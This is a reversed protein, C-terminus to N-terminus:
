LMFKCQFLIVVIEYKLYAILVPLLINFKLRRKTLSVQMPFCIKQVLYATISTGAFIASWYLWLSGMAGSLLAPALSRALNM